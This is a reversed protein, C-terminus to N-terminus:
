TVMNLMYDTQYVVISPLNVILKEDESAGEVFPFSGNFSASTIEVGTLKPLSKIWKTRFYM